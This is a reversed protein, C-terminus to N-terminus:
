QVSCTKEPEAREELKYTGGLLWSEDAGGGFMQGGGGAKGTGREEEGPRLIQLGEIKKGAKNVANRIDQARFDAPRDDRDILHVTLYMTEPRLKFKHHVEILWDVLIRRMSPNIEEQRCMYYPCVAAGSRTVALAAPIRM